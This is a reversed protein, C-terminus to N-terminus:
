KEKSNSFTSSTSSTTNSGSTSETYISDSYRPSWAGDREEAGHRDSLCNARPPERYVGYTRALANSQDIDPIFMNSISIHPVFQLTLDMGSTCRSSQCVRARGRGARDSDPLSDWDAALM